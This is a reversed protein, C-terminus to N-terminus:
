LDDFQSRQSTPTWFIVWLWNRSRQNRETQKKSVSQGQAADLKINM